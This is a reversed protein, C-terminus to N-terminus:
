SEKELVFEVKRNRARNELSDNAVLPLYDVYGNATMREPYIGQGIFYRLVRTASVAPLEWNSSFQTADIARDDTHGGIAISYDAYLRFPIKLPRCCPQNTDSLGM